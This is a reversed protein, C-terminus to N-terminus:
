KGLKKARRQEEYRDFDEKIGPQEWPPTKLLKHDRDYFFIHPNIGNAKADRYAARMESDTVGLGSKKKDCVRSWDIDQIVVHANYTRSLDRNILLLKCARRYGAGHEPSDLMNPLTKGPHRKLYERHKSLFQYHQFQAANLKRKAEDPPVGDIVLEVAPLNLANAYVNTFGKKELEKLPKARPTLLGYLLDGQKFNSYLDVKKQPLIQPLIRKSVYSDVPKAVGLSILKGIGPNVPGVIGPPTPMSKDRNMPKSIGSPIPKGVGSNVPSAIASPIPKGVGSNGSKFTLKVLKEATHIPEEAKQKRKENLQRSM